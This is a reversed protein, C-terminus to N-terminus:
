SFYDKLQRSSGPHRLKRLAKAEIQRIREKTLGFVKAVEELTLENGDVLGYRYELVRRERENLQHSMAEEIKERLMMKETEDSPQLASDDKPLSDQPSDEGDEHDPTELSIPDEITRLLERVKNGAERIKESLYPGPEEGKERCRKLAALDDPELIGGEIALEEMTPTREYRQELESKIRQLKMVTEFTHAPIRILRSQEALSRTIAQRIWWTSYTSFRFGLKPDYKQVAHLLGLNGEQILDSFSAGRGQYRKAVSFVLKLNARIFIQSATGAQAQIERLRKGTLEASLTEPPLASIEPISGTGASLQERITDILEPPMLCLDIFADFLPQYVKKWKKDFEKEPKRDRNDPNMCTYLLFPEGETEKPSITEADKLLSLLDAAPVAENNAKNFDALLSLYRNWLESFDAYNLKGAEEPDAELLRDAGKGAQILVALRFEDEAKLIEIDGIERLYLLVPDDASYAGSHDVPAEEPEFGNDQLEYFDQDAESM